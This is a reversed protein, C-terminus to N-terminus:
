HMNYYISINLKLLYIMFCSIIIIYAKNLFSKFKVYANTSYTISRRIKIKIVYM